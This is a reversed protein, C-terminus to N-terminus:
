IGFITTCNKKGIYRAYCEQCLPDKEEPGALYFQVGDLNAPCRACTFCGPHFSGGLAQLVTGTVPGRCRACKDRSALYDEECVIAGGDLQFYKGRIEASCRSCCFCRPHYAQGTEKPRVTDGM